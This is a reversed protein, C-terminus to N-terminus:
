SDWSPRYWRVFKVKNKYFPMFTNIPDYGKKIGKYFLTKDENTFALKYDSNSSYSVFCPFFCKLKKRQEQKNIVEPDSYDYKPIGFIQEYSWDKMFQDIKIKEEEPIKFYTM